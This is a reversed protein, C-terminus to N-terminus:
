RAAKLLLAFATRPSFLPLHAAAGNDLTDPIRLFPGYVVSSCHNTSGPPHVTTTSRPMPPNVMVREYRGSCDHLVRDVPVIVRM